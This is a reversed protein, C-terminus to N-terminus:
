YEEAVTVLWLKESVVSIKLDKSEYSLSFCGSKTTHLSHGSMPDVLSYLCIEGLPPSLIPFPFLDLFAMRKRHAHRFESSPINLFKDTQRGIRNRFCFFEMVLTEHKQDVFVNIENVKRVMKFNVKPQLSLDASGQWSFFNKPLIGTSRFTMYEFFYEVLAEYWLTSNAQGSATIPM